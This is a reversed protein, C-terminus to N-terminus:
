PIAHRYSYITQRFTTHLNGLTVYVPHMNRGNFTIPTEDMYPIIALINADVGLDVQQSRWWDATWLESYVRNTRLNDDDYEMKFRFQAHDAHDGDNLLDELVPWLDFTICKLDQGPCIMEIGNKVPRQINDLSVVRMEATELVRTEEKRIEKVSLPIREDFKCKSIQSLTDNIKCILSCHESCASGFRM